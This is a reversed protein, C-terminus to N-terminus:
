RCSQGADEIYEKLNGVLSRNEAFRVDDVYWRGDIQTLEVSDKWAIARNKHAKPFRKDINMLDSEVVVSEGERHPEGYAIETAGEYNGVFLDGEVILPKEGKPAARVCKAEMESAAKLLKIVEPSLTKALEAREKASPLGRSPHALVWAYFAHVCADPSSTDALAPTAFILVCLLAAGSRTVM